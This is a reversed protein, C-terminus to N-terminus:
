FVNNIFICLYRGAKNTIVFMYTRSHFFFQLYQLNFFFDTENTYFFGNSDDVM